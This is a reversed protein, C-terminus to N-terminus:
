LKAGCNICFKDGGPNSANCQKCVASSPGQPKVPTTPQYADKSPVYTQGPAATFIKDKKDKWVAEGIASGIAAVGISIGGVIIVAIILIIGIILFLPGLILSGILEGLDSTSDFITAAGVIMLVGIIIGGLAILGAIIATIKIGDNKFAFFGLLLAGGFIGGGWGFFVSANETNAFLFVPITSAFFSIIGIVDFLFRNRAM